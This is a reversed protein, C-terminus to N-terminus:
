LEKESKFVKDNIYTIAVSMPGHKKLQEIFNPNKRKLKLLFDFRDSADLIEDIDV